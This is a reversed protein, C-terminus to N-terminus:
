DLRGVVTGVAYGVDLEGLVSGVALGLELWGLVAGVVDRGDPEGVDSTGEATGVDLAGVSDMAFTHASFTALVTFVPYLSRCRSPYVRLPTEWAPLPSFLKM